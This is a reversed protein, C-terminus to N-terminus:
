FAQGIGIYFAFRSDDDRPNIPAALDFRLPGIGTYYRVGVGAGFRVDGDQGDLWSDAGVLGGDVFGVAGWRDNVRYRLEGSAEFLSRGGVVASDGDVTIDVGISNVEFGRVSGGGGAFFLQNPPSEETSPGAFSGLKARGALVTRREEGFHLYSRGEITGRVAGNGFDFEYYPRLDAAFFYGETPDLTSDRREYQARVVPGITTFDRVGLDDTFRARAAELFVDGSWKQGIRQNFGIRGTISRERYTDFDNQLGVLSAFASTNPTIVGPRTFTVGLRYTLEDPFDQTGIGQISADVRLREARGFLNRHLWYAEIGLGDLTSLTGGIGYARRLRDEVLIDIPMSGDPALEGEEIRLLRFVGLEGLRQNAEDLDEPDFSEGEPLDAMFAVFAPDVRESGTVRVPGYTVPPGPDLRILVDLRSADHDAVVERGTEVAKAHSRERWRQVALASAATVAGARATEGPAFGVDEPRGDPDDDPDPWPPPNEFATAGFRFRPGPRVDVAIPVPPPLEAALTLDAVERGHATISIEGGYFGANYLAALIRRYDGKSKALLGARGSAPDERDSWLNSANRISNALREDDTAVTFAVTYDLPDIIDIDTDAEPSGWLRIGFIEFAHAPVAGALGGFILLAALSLDHRSRGM